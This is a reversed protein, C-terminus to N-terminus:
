QGSATRSQAALRAFREPLKAGALTTGALVTRELRAERM